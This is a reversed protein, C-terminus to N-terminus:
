VAADRGPGHRLVFTLGWPNPPSPGLTAPSVSMAGSGWTRELRSGRTGVSGQGACSCAPVEMGTLCRQFRSKPLFSGSQVSIVQCSNLQWTRQMELKREHRPSFLPAGNSAVKSGVLGLPSNLSPSFFLCMGKGAYEAAPGVPPTM